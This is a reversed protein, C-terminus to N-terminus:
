QVGVDRPRLSGLGASPIASSLVIAKGGIPSLTQVAASIAAGFAHPGRYITGDAPPEPFFEELQEFLM